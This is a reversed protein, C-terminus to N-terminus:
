SVGGADRDDSPILQQPVASNRNLDDRGFYPQALITHTIQHANKPVAANQVHVM